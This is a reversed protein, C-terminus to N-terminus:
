SAAAAAPTESALTKGPDSKTRMEIVTRVDKHRQITKDIKRIVEDVHADQQDNLDSALQDSNPNVETDNISDSM